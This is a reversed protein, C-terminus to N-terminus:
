ETGIRGEAKGYEIYHMYYKELDSGFAAYLDVYRNMYAYVNFEDSARRGESMGYEVFHALVKQRETGVGAAVDSNLELYRDCDYVDVYAAEDYSIISGFIAGLGSRGEAKGYNVYHMYYSKLDSGFAERVDDYSNMYAYVNFEENAQRGESMGYNLFHQFVAERDSGLVAVIDPNLEVYRDYDYVAAYGIEDITASGDVDTIEVGCRGEAKGYNVYHMYYAKLDNEFVNRVDEYSNMYAYVNFEESGRRGEAMGYEVFHGLAGDFNDFFVPVLDANYEMYDVYNYVASYDVGNYYASPVFEMGQSWSTISMPYLTYFEETAYEEYREHYPFENESKLLFTDYTVSDQGDWTTDVNYYYQGIRAINWGHSVGRGTGAIVRASVGAEKCFRYFM